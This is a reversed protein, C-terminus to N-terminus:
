KKGKRPTKAKVKVKKKTSVKKSSIKKRKRYVRISDKYEQYDTEQEMADMISIIDLSDTCYEVIRNYLRELIDQFKVTKTNRNGIIEKIIAM